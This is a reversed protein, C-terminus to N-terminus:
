FKNIRDIPAQVFKNNASHTGQFALYMYWPTDPMTKAHETIWENAKEGYLTSSYVCASEYVAEDEGPIIDVYDRIKHLDVGAENIDVDGYHKWYDTCGLYVMFKDFGRSSPLYEKSKMGLHWKGIMFTTYNYHKKLQEPFLTYSLNLGSADNRHDFPTQIGHHIM